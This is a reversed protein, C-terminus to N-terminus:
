AVFTPVWAQGAKPTNSNNESPTQVNRKTEYFEKVGKVKGEVMKGFINKVKGNFAKEVDFEKKESYFKNSIKVKGDKQKFNETRLPPFNTDDMPPVSNESKLEVQPEESKSSDSDDGSPPKDSKPVDSEDGVKKEKKKIEEKTRLNTDSSNPKSSKATSHISEDASKNSKDPSGSSLIKELYERAKKRKKRLKDKQGQSLKVKKEQVKPEQVKQEKVNQESVRLERPKVTVPKKAMKQSNVRLRESSKRPCDRAIHGQIQCNYCRRTEFRQRQCNVAIHGQYGCKYCMRNDYWDGDEYWVSLDFCQKAQHYEKRRKITPNTKQASHDFRCWKNGVIKSNETKLKKPKQNRNSSRDSSSKNEKQANKLNKVKQKQEVIKKVPKQTSCEGTETSQLVTNKFKEKLELFLKQKEIKGNEDDSKEDCDEVKVNDFNTVDDSIPISNIPKPCPFNLSDSKTVFGKLKKELEDIKKRSNEAENEFQSIKSLQSAITNENVIKNKEFISKENELIKIQNQFETEKEKLVKNELKIWSVDKNESKIKEFDKNELLLSEINKLLKDNESKLKEYNLRLELIQEDDAKKEIKLTKNELTLSEMDKLLKANDSESKDCKSCKETMKVDEAKKEDKIASIEKVQEEVDQDIKESKLKAENRIKQIELEREEIKEIFDSLSYNIFDTKNKLMMLYTGWEDYPLADCLKDIWEENTKVIKLRRM